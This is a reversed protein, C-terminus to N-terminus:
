LMAAVINTWETVGLYFAGVRNGDLRRYGREVGVDHDVASGIDMHILALVSGVLGKPHIRHSRQM